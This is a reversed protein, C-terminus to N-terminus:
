SNVVMVRKKRGNFMKMRQHNELRIISSLKEVRRKRKKIQINKQIPLSVKWIM